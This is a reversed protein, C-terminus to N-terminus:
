KRKIKYDKKPTLVGLMEKLKTDNIKGALQGTQYVQILYSELQSAIVPSSIKVRFFRELADKTMIKKMIEKNAEEVHIKKNPVSIM